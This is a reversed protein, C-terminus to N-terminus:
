LGHIVECLRDLFSQLIYHTPFNCLKWLTLAPKFYASHDSLDKEGKGQDSSCLHKNQFLMIDVSTMVCAWQTQLFFSSADNHVAVHCQLVALLVADSLLMTQELKRNYSGSFIWEEFCKQISVAFYTSGCWTLITGSVLFLRNCVLHWIDKSWFHINRMSASHYMTFKGREATEQIALKNGSNLDFIPSVACGSLRTTVM